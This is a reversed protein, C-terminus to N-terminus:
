VASPAISGRCGSARYGGTTMTSGAESAVSGSRSGVSSAVSVKRRKLEVTSGVRRLLARDEDEEKGADDGTTSGSLCAAQGDPLVSRANPRFSDALLSLEATINEM